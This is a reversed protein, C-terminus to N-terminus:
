FSAPRSKALLTTQIGYAIIAVKYSLFGLFIPLIQLQDIRSAIFVVLIILGLRNTGSLSQKERGLKEVDKALMRLYVFSVAAGISYNLASNLSIQWWTLLFVIATFGLMLQIISKKLRYYDAMADSVPPANQTATATETELLPHQGLDQDEDSPNM